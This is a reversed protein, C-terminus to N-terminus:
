HINRKPERSFNTIQILAQEKYKATLPKRQPTFRETTVVSSLEKYGLFLPKERKKQIM